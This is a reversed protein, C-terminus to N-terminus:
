YIHIKRLEYLFSYVGKDLYLYFFGQEVLAAFIDGPFDMQVNRLSAVNPLPHVSNVIRRTCRKILNWLFSVLHKGVM